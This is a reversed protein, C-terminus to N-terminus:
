DNREVNHVVRELINRENFSAAIRGPGSIQVDGRIEREGKGPVGLDDM